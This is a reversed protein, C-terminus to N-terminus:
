RDSTEESTAWAGAFSALLLSSVVLVLELRLLGAAIRHMIEFEKWIMTGADRNGETVATRWAALVDQLDPSVFILQYALVSMAGIMAMQACARVIRHRRDLMRGRGALYLALVCGAAVMRVRDSALFVPNTVFGAIFRGIAPQDDGFYADALPSSIELDPLTTFASAAVVGSSVIAAIWAVLTALLLSFRLRRWIM